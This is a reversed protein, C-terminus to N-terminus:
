FLNLIEMLVYLTVFSAITSFFVSIGVTRPILRFFTALISCYLASPMAYQMVVVKLETGNIGLLIGIGLAILPSIILKMITVAVVFKVPILKIKIEGLVIGLQILGLILASVGLGYVPERIFQPLKINFMSLVISVFVVYVLPLKLIDAISKKLNRIPSESSNVGRSVLYIGYTQTAISTLVLILAAYSSASAGLYLEIVPIGINGTNPLFSLLIFAYRSRVSLKIFSAVYRSILYMVVSQIILHLLTILFNQLLVSGNIDFSRLILGPTLIYIALVTLNYPDIKRFKSLMFSIVIIIIVPFLVNLFM